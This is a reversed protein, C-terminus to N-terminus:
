NQYELDCENDNTPANYNCYSACATNTVGQLHLRYNSATKTNQFKVDTCLGEEM